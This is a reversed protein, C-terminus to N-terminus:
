TPVGRLCAGPISSTAPDAPVLVEIGDRSLLITLQERLGPRCLLGGTLVVSPLALFRALDILFGALRIGDPWCALGVGLRDDTPLTRLALQACGVGGCSCQGSALIRIHGLTRPEGDPVPRVTSDLVIAGGLESGFVAVLLDPRGRGVGAMVEGTAAAVGDDSLQVAAAVELLAERLRFGAWSPQNPWALVRGDAGVAGPFAVGLPGVRRGLKDRLWTTLAVPDRPTR